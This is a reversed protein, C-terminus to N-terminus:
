RQDSKVLVRNRNLIGIIVGPLLAQRVTKKRGFRNVLGHPIQHAPLFCKVADHQVRRTFAHVSFRQFPQCPEIRGSDDIDGAVRRGQRAIQFDQDVVAVAGAADLRDVEERLGIM